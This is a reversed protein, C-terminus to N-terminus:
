SAKEATRNKEAEDYGNEEKKENNQCDCKENPDLNSGCYPCPTYFGM